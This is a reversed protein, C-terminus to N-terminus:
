PTCCPGGLTPDELWMCLTVPAWYNLLEGPDLGWPNTGAGSTVDVFQVTKVVELQSWGPTGTSTARSYGKDHTVCGPLDILLAPIELKLSDVLDYDVRAEVVSVNFATIELINEFVNHSGAADLTVREWLKGTWPHGIPTPDAGFDPYKRSVDDWDKVRKTEFCDMCSGWSRPDLVKALEIPTRNVLARATVTTMPRATGAGFPEYCAVCTANTVQCAAAQAAFLGELFFDFVEPLVPLLATPDIDLARTLRAMGDRVRHVYGLWEVDHAALVELLQRREGNAFGARGLIRLARRRRMADHEDHEENLIKLARDLRIPAFAEGWSTAEPRELLSPRLSRLHYAHYYVSWLAQRVGQHEKDTRRRGPGGPGLPAAAGPVRSRGARRRAAM